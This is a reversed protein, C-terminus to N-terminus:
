RNSTGNVDYTVGFNFGFPLNRRIYLDVWRNVDAIDSRPVFVMDLPQLEIDQAPDEGSVAKDLDVAFTLREQNEGRRIIVVEGTRATDKFGEAVMVAQLVSLPGQLPQTGPRNVEGGVFVRRSAANQLNIAVEPRQVLPRYAKKLRDALAAPTTDAAAVEGILPLSIKGDPRVTAVINLEPTYFFAITLEDGVGIKYDATAAKRSQEQIQAVPTPQSLVPACASLFFAILLILKSPM